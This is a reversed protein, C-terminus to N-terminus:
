RCRSGSSRPSRARATSPRRSSCRARCSAWSTACCTSRSRCATAPTPWGSSWSRGPRDGARAPRVAPPAPHLDVPAARRAARGRRHVPRRPGPVEDVRVRLRRVRGRPDPHGHGPDRHVPQQRLGATINQQALVHAYNDLTFQSPKFFATWWGSQTVDDTPRFSNVLLGITPILWIVMLFLIVAHLPLSRRLRRACPRAGAARRRATAATMPDGGPRPLAPHQLGDGPHDRAAPDVAIASARGDNLNIYMEQIM